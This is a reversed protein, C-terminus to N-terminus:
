VQVVGDKLAIKLDLDGSYHDIKVIFYKYISLM